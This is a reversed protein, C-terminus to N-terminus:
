EYCFCNLDQYVDKLFESIQPGQKWFVHDLSNFFFSNKFYSNFWKMTKDSFRICKMKGLLTEYDLTDFPKKLDILIM